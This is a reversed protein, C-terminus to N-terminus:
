FIVRMGGPANYNLSEQQSCARTNFFHKLFPVDHSIRLYNRSQGIPVTSFILDYDGTCGPFSGNVVIYLHGQGYGKAFDWYERAAWDKGDQAIQRISNLAEQPKSFGLRSLYVDDFSLTTVESKARPSKHFTGRM